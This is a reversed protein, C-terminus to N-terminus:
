PTGIDLLYKVEEDLDQELPSPKTQHRFTIDAFEKQLKGNYEKPNVGFMYSLHTIIALNPIKTRVLNRITKKIENISYGECTSYKKNKM